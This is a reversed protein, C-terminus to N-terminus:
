GPHHRDRGENLSRLDNAGRQDQDIRYQGGLGSFDEDEQHDADTGFNPRATLTPDITLQAMLVKSAAWQYSGVARGGVTVIPVAAGDHSITTQAVQAPNDMATSQIVAPTPASFDFLADDPHSM